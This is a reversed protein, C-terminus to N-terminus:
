DLTHRCTSVSRYKPHGNVGSTKRNRAIPRRRDRSFRTRDGGSTEPKEKRPMDSTEETAVMNAREEARHWERRCRGKGKASEVPQLQTWTPVPVNQNSMSEHREHSETARTAAGYSRGQTWSQRHLHRKPAAPARATLMSVLVSEPWRECVAHSYKEVDRLWLM